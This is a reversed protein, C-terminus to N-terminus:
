TTVKSGNIRLNQFMTNLVQLDDNAFLIMHLQDDLIFLTGRMSTTTDHETVTTSFELAKTTGFAVEKTQIESVTVNQGKLSDQLIQRFEEQPLLTIDVGQYTPDQESQHMIFGHENALTSVGLQESVDLVDQPVAAMIGGALTVDKMLVAPKRSSQIAIRSLIVAAEARSIHNEPHFAGYIDSGSLVGAGYLTLIQEAYPTKATVDAPTYVSIRPLATDPLARAIIGAMQARTITAEYDEFEDANIIGCNICYDVFSRYWVAEGPQVTTTGTKYIEYVRAAMVLAQAVTLDGEMGFTGDGLGSMLDYENCQQVAPAAWHQAPVDTFGEYERIKQFNDMSAASTASVPVALTLMLSFASAWATFKKM